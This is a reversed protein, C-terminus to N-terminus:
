FMMQGSTLTKMVVVIVKKMPGVPRFREQLNKRSHFLPYIRIRSMTRISSMTRIKTPSVWVYACGSPRGERGCLLNVRFKCSIGLSDLSVQFANSIQNKNALGTEVYLVKSCSEDSM